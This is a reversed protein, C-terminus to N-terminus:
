MSSHGARDAGVLLGLRDISVQREANILAHCLWIQLINCNLQSSRDSLLRRAGICSAFSIDFKIRGSVHFAPCDTVGSRISDDAAYLLLASEPIQM